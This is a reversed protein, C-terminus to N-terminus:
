QLSQDWNHVILSAYCQIWVALDTVPEKRRQFLGQLPAASDTDSHFLWSEPRLEAMDVYELNLITNRLQDPLSCMGETSFAAHASTATAPISAPITPM